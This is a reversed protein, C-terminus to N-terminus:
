FHRSVDILLGRWPFRPSDVLVLAPVSLGGPSATLLQLFTQLGHIVGLPNPADLHVETSNIELRYSEDEGLKQVKEGESACNIIFNAKGGPGGGVAVGQRALSHLFREVAHKVRPDEQGRMDVTLSQDVVFSGEGPQVRAPLPMVMLSAGNQARARCMFVLAATLLLWAARM